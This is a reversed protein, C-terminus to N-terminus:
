ASRVRELVLSYDHEPAFDVDEPFSGPPLQVRLTREGRYGSDDIEQIELIIAKNRYTVRVMGAAMVLRNLCGDEHDYLDRDIM